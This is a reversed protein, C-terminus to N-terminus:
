KREQLREKRLQEYCDTIDIDLLAQYYDSM